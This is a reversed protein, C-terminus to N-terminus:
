KIVKIELAHLGNNYEDKLISNIMKHVELISQNYFIKSKIELYIHTENLGDFKNHGIHEKSKDILLLHTPNFNKKLIDKIRKIRGM